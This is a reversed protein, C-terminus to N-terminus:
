LIIVTFLIYRQLIEKLLHVINEIMKIYFGCRYLMSGVDFVRILLRRIKILNINILLNTM